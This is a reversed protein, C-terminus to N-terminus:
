EGSALSRRKSKFAVAQRTPQIGVPKPSPPLYHLYPPHHHQLTLKVRPKLNFSLNLDPLLPMSAQQILFVAPVLVPFVGAFSVLFQYFFFQHGEVIVLLALDLQIVVADREAQQVAQGTITHIKM